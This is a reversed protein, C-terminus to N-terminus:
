HRVGTNTNSLSIDLHELNPLDSNYPTSKCKHHSSLLLIRIFTGFLNLSM